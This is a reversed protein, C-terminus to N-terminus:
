GAKIEAARGRQLECGLLVSPGRLFSCSLQAAHDRFISSRLQVAEVVCEDPVATQSTEGAFEAKIPTTSPPISGVTAA